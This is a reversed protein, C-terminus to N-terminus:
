KEAPEDGDGYACTFTKGCRRCKCKLDPGSPWPGTAYDPSHLKLLRCQILKAVAYVFILLAPGTAIWVIESM